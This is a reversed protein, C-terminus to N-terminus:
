ETITTDVSTVTSRVGDTAVFSLTHKGASLASLAFSTPVTSSAQVRTAGDYMDVHACAEDFNAVAIQVSDSTKYQNRRNVIMVGPDAVLGDIRYVHVYDVEFSVPFPTANTPTGGWGGVWGNIKWILPLDPVGVTTRSLKVDGDISLEISGPKWVLTYVHFQSFDLGAIPKKPDQPEVFFTRRSDAPLPPAAWHNVFWLQTAGVNTLEIDIEPFPQSWPTAWLAYWVGPAYPFRARFEYKGYTRAFRGVNDIFGSVYPLAAGAPSKDTIISLLGDHVQAKEPASLNLITGHGMDGTEVNWKVTDLSTGDFEDAFVLTEGPTSAPPGSLACLTSADGTPASADAAADMGGPGAAGSVSEFPDTPAPQSDDRSTCALLLSALATLAFAVRSAPNRMRAHPADLTGRLNAAFFSGEAAGSTLVSVGIRDLWHRAVHASRLCRM